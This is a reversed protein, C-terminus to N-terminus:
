PRNKIKRLMGAADERVAPNYSSWKDLHGLLEHCRRCLAILNDPDLEKEPHEHFPECHHVELSEERGCAECTPHAEIYHKRVAPWKGSRLVGHAQAHASRLGSPVGVAPPSTIEISRSLIMLVAFYVAISIAIAALRRNKTM